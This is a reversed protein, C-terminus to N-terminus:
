KPDKQPHNQADAKPVASEHQADLRQADQGQPSRDASAALGVQKAGLPGMLQAYHEACIYATLNHRVPMPDDFPIEEGVKKAAPEGCWCTEGRCAASIM